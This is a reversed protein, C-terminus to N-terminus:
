TRFHASRLWQITDGEVVQEAMVETCDFDMDDCCVLLPVLTSTGDEGAHLRRIALALDDGDILRMLSLGLREFGSLGLLGSPM